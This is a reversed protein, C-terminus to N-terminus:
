MQCKPCFHSSRQNIKVRQIPTQCISCPNGTKQYVKHYASFKGEAGTADFYDKVSSGRKSVAMRLIKGISIFIREIEEDTLTKVVRLPNIKASFLIEDAYINGIGAIFKQDLLLPKIKANKRKLIREIFEKRSITLADPGLQQIEKLKDANKVEKWWGFKRQDNFVLVSGDSLNFVQRTFRGPNTNLILQGTLKLHFVLSSGNIFDIVIMKGKRRVDTIKKDKWKKSIIKEALQRRITEVEPLEPM